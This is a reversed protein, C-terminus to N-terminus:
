GQLGKGGGLVDVASWAGFSNFGNERLFGIEESAWREMTGFREKFAAPLNEFKDINTRVVEKMDPLRQTDAPKEHIQRALRAFRESLPVLQDPEQSIIRAFSRKPSILEYEAGFRTGDTILRIPEPTPLGIEYVMQNIRFERAATDAAWGPSYLKALTKGNKHNYTLATGGEGTQVYDELNIRQIDNEM